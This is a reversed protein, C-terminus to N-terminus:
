VRLLGKERLLEALSTEPRAGVHSIIEAAALAGIRACEGAPYGQTYGFLFGAAFLDGAGTTDIVRSIPEAPVVHVDNGAAIVSGEAGRTLVAIDCHARVAALAESFQDTQYLALIEQENAFLIDVHNAALNLFEDRHRNVCFSDSLSLAVKRHAQHAAETAKLFAQKARPPDWLYGELYTVKASAILEPDIDEVGLDVSAGLFTNMSRQADPSVLILCRATPLGSEAPTTSFSVGAKRIDQQFVRGLSDNYVKGIYAAKGGLSAVGVVSNAVSGGSIEAVPTMKQYLQEAREADILTMAGKEVSNNTLFDDDAYALVDVIANGIGVVDFVAEVM